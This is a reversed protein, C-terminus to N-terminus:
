ARRKYDEVATFGETKLSHAVKNLNSRTNAFFTVFEDHDAYLVFPRPSPVFLFDVWSELASTLLPQLEAATEALILTDHGLEVPLHHQNLLSELAPTDMVVEDIIVEGSRADTLSGLITTTFSPLSRLPTAFTQEFRWPTRHFKKIAGDEQTLKM